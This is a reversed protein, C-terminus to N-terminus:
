IVQVVSILPRLTLDSICLFMHIAYQKLAKTILSHFTHEYTIVGEREMMYSGGIIHINTSNLVILMSSSVFNDRKFDHRESVHEQVMCWQFIPTRNLYIVLIPVDVKHLILMSKRWTIFGRLLPADYYPSSMTAQWLALM